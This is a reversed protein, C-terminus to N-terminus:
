EITEDALVCMLLPVRDHRRLPGCSPQREKDSRNRQGDKEQNRCEPVEFRRAYCGDGLIFESSTRCLAVAPMNLPLPQAAIVSRVKIIIKTGAAAGAPIIM